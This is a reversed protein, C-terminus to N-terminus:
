HAEVSVDEYTASWAPSLKLGKVWPQHVIYRQSHHLFILPADAVIQDEAKEYLALRNPGPPMTLGKDLLADVKKNSYFSRNLSSTPTISRSNFLPDLFNAPDPYDQLWGMIALKTGGAGRVGAKAKLDPYRLSKLDVTMGVNALDQQMSQAAKAYWPENDSYYLTIPDKANDKYGAAKLLARAKDPNYDYGKLDPQYAPMGPPLAGHALSVRGTLFSAIRKRNVAYNLARRVRADNFPALENNMAVYRIDMMPASLVGAKWPEQRTLRLFDPAFADSIPLIDLAGQEYLMDQLENSISLQVEIRECKPLNPHFYHPNKNLYLWGDHVWQDLTFPGCGLPYDSLERGQKELKEVYPRSVAYAFPLALNNLFTADPKELQFIITRADPVEIGTPHATTRPNKEVLKIWDNAGVINQFFSQGDSATKPNLVREIACRFSDAVVPSGDTFKVDPRLRFTYTKGDESITHSAAVEDHLNANDDYELLGRYILRVFQISTTDYAKAPDLTSSDSKQALHLVGAPRPARACGTLLPILLLARLLLKKM